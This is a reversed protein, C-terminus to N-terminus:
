KVSYGPNQTMVADINLDIVTQPIPFLVNQDQINCGPYMPNNCYKRVRQLLLGVRRLTIHRWEEGYLERAREDLISEITVNATLIPTAKARNRIANIDAAALTKNQLGLYAEARLM